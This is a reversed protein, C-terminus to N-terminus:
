NSISDLKKSAKNISGYYRKETLTYLEFDIRLRETQQGKKKLSGVYVFDTEKVYSSGHNSHQSFHIRIM